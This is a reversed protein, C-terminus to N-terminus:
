IGVGDGAAPVAGRRRMKERRAYLLDKKGMECMDGDRWRAALRSAWNKAQSCVTSSISRGCPSM